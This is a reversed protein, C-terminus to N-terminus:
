YRVKGNSVRAAIGLIAKQVAAFAALSDVENTWVQVTFAAEGGVSLQITPRTEDPVGTQRQSHVEWLRGQVVLRALRRCEDEPLAGNWTEDSTRTKRHVTVLADAFQVTTWGELGNGDGYRGQLDACAVTGDALRSWRDAISDM